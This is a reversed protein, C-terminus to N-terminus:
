GLQSRATGTTITLNKALRSNESSRIKPFPVINFKLISYSLGMLFDITYRMVMTKKM